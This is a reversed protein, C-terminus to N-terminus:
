WGAGLRGFRNGIVHCGPRSLSREVMAPSPGAMVRDLITRRRIAPDLGAM